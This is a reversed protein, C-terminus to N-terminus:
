LYPKLLILADQPTEAHFTFISNGPTTKELQRAILEGDLAAGFLVLCRGPALGQSVAFDSVLSGLRTLFEGATYKLADIVIGQLPGFKAYGSSLADMLVKEMPSPSIRARKGAIRNLLGGGTKPERPSEEEPTFPGTEGSPVDLEFFGATEVSVVAEVDPVSPGAAAKSLLGM